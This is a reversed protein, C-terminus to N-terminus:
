KEIKKPSFIGDTIDSVVCFTIDRIPKDIRRKNNLRVLNIKTKFMTNKQMFLSSDKDLYGHFRIM